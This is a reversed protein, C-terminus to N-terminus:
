KVIVDCRRAILDGALVFERDACSTKMLVNFFFSLQAQKPSIMQRPVYKRGSVKRKRDRKSDGVAFTKWVELVGDDVDDGGGVKQASCGSGGPFKTM